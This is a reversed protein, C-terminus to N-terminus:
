VPLPDKTVKLNGKMDCGLNNWYIQYKKIQGRLDVQKGNLIRHLTEFIMGSMDDAHYIGISNFFNHLESEEDWLGWDNRINRGVSHHFDHPKGQRFFNLSEEDNEKLLCIIAELLNNPNNM